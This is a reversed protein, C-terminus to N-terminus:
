FPSRDSDPYEEMMVAEPEEEPEPEAEPTHDPARTPRDRATEPASRPRRAAVPRQKASAGNASPPPVLTESEEVMIEGTTTDVARAPARAGDSALIESTAKHVIGGTPIDLAAADEMTDVRELEPTETPARSSKPLRKLLRKLVANKAMEEFHTAWPGRTPSASYARYRDVTARSMVDYQSDAAGPLRGTAYVYILDDEGNSAAPNPVHDLRAHLGEAYDWVDGAYVAMSRVVLGKTAQQALKLRGEIMLILTAKGKFPVIAAEKGDPVLGANMAALLAQQLSAVDCEAVQPTQVMANLVVRSYAEQSYGSRELLSANLNVVYEIREKVDLKNTM